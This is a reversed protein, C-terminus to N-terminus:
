RSPLTGLARGCASSLLRDHTVFTFHMLVMRVLMACVAPVSCDHMLPVDIVQMVPMQMMQVISVHVLMYDLHRGGIGVSTLWDAALLVLVPRVTAMLLHRVAIMHIVQHIPLQVMGVTIM